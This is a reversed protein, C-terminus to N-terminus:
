RRAAEAHQASAALVSLGHDLDNILDDANEIGVAPIQDTGVYRRTSRVQAQASLSCVFVIMLLIRIRM